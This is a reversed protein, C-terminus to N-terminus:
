NTKKLEYKKANKVINEWSDTYQAPDQLNLEEFALIREVDSGTKGDSLGDKNPFYTTITNKFILNFDLNLQNTSDIADKIIESKSNNLYPLYININETDWNGLKFSKMISNYFEPRCDPYIAHDGSHVGLSLDVKQNHRKSISLAYGYLISAFIANRNPVVTEKMSMDEYHGLPIDINKDTLASSLLEMCDSINVIRNEVKFGHSSLYEINKKAYEIEISHKQGYNYTVTYIKYKKLLLHLLLSTSDLGGSLSLVAIM